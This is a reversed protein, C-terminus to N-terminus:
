ELHAEAQSSIVLNDVLYDSIANKLQVGGYVAFAVVLVLVILKAKLRKNLLDKLRM